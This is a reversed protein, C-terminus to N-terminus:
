FSGFSLAKNQLLRPFGGVVTVAGSPVVCKGFPAAVLRKLLPVKITLVPFNDAVFYGLFLSGLRDM